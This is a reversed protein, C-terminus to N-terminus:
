VNGVEAYNVALFGSISKVAKPYLKQVEQAMYGIQVPGGWIYRYLYVGLGKEERIKRIDTKLRRDSFMFAGQVGAGLLGYLGQRQANQEAIQQAYNNANINASGFTAGMIDAPAISTQPSNVFSPGQVQSGSLMAALENLPQSRQQIMENISRDRQNAELGYLQSAQGLAANEVALRADNQSRYFQDMERNFAETGSAFGQNALRTELAAREQELQPNIRQYLSDAVSRRTDENLTPAAGLSSFDLPQGLRQSVADLQSNATQGFKLAAANSQDYIAQQEPSLTQTASYQPTGDAATGRQTYELSGGPTYQNVMNINAQAVAAEKNAAAQAAATKAPDPAAPQSPSKKGM